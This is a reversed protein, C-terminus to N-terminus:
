GGFETNPLGQMQAPRGITLGEQRRVRDVTMLQELAAVLPRDTRDPQLVSLSIATPVAATEGPAPSFLAGDDSVRLM